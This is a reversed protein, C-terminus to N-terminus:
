PSKKEARDLRELNTVLDRHGPAALLGQEFVARAEDVRGDRALLVGLDNYGRPDDPHSTMLRFALAAAADRRLMGDLLVSAIHLAEPDDPHHQLHSICAVLTEVRRGTPLLTSILSRAIDANDPLARHGEGLVDAAAHANGQELLVAALGLWVAPASAGDDMARRYMRGARELAQPDQEHSGIEYWRMAENAAGLARWDARVDGLGWPVVALAGAALMAVTIRRGEGQLLRLLVYGALLAMLPVLVLRYRSVVFFLSQGALLVALLVAWWRAAPPAGSRWVLALGALALASILGYPAVLLRLAPAAATWRALPTLQDIEWGQLHLWVKKLWLAATRLPRERMTDLAADLWLRDAEALSVSRRGFRGALFERGAPDYRWDGPVVAVYFGNAEPGNGIYLNVGGNLAPGALRGAARSNHAVAPAVALAAGVALLACAVAGRRRGVGAVVAAVAVPALFVATGRLLAAAGLTLGLVFPAALALRGGAAQGNRRWWTLLAAALTVLFAMPGDLLVSATYVAAPRYLAYLLAPAWVVIRRRWGDAALPGLVMGAMWRLLLATGFWFVVQMLRVGRLSGSPPLGDAVAADAAGAQALLAPYLPSMYFADATGGSRSEAARDLYYIEDLIPVRGFVSREAQPLFAAWFAAALLGLVLGTWPVTRRTGGSRHGRAAM